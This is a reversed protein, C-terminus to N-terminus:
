GSTTVELLAGDAAFRVTSRTGDPREAVYLSSGDPQLLSSCRAGAVDDATLLGPLPECEVLGNDLSAEDAVGVDRTAPDVAPEVPAVTHMGREFSALDDRLMAVKPDDAPLGAAAMADLEAQLVAVGSAAAAGSSAGAPRDHAGPTDRALLALGAAVVAFAYLSRRM